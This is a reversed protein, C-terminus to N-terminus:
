GVELPITATIITGGGVPSSVALDGSLANVRDKLGILGSGGGTHAGGIGDDSITLHLVGDRCAAQVRVETAEAYKATNTLAEAIVYYAAVEVSEPVHG